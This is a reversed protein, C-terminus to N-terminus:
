VHLRRTRRSRCPCFFGMVRAIRRCMPSEGTSQPARRISGSRSAMWRLRAPIRRFFGSSRSAARGNQGSGVLGAVGLIEGRRVEFSIDAFRGESALNEVCLRPEGIPVQPKDFFKGLERGVMMRIIEDTSTQKVERTGICHGDRLVTIRDSIAFVEELRHSIFVIATGQARLQRVIRFLDGVEEPTLAATPEDMLLVRAKQSLAAALEVMQQDAISLGRVKARPDLKVGLQTLLADARAYMAGWNVFWAPSASRERRTHPVGFARIQRAGPDAGERTRESAAEAPSEIAPAGGSMFINEAVDLDPFSLPEQHILAIGLKLAALPSPIDLAQGYLRLEGSDPRHVGALIKMLTSKGAGNEGMLTHVEGPRLDFDVSELVTVGAFSKGINHCTLVPKSDANSM